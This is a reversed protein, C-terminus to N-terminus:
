RLNKSHQTKHWGKESEEKVRMLLSKLEEKREAQIDIVNYNNLSNNYLQKYDDRMSMKIRTSVSTM